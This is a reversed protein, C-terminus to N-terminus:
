RHSFYDLCKSSCFATSGEGILDCTRSINFFFYIYIRTQIKLLADQLIINKSWWWRKIQVSVYIILTSYIQSIYLFSLNLYPCRIHVVNQKEVMFDCTFCREPQFQTYITPLIRACLYAAYRGPWFFFHHDMNPIPQHDMNPVCICHNTFPQIQIFFWGNRLKLYIFPYYKLLVQSSSDKDKSNGLMTCLHLLWLVEFFNECASIKM